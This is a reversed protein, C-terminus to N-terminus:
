PGRWRNNPPVMLQRALIIAGIAILLAAPLRAYGLWIGLTGSSVLDGAWAGSSDFVRKTTKPLFNTSISLTLSILSGLFMLTAGLMRTRLALYGFGAAISLSPVQFLAMLAYGSLDM